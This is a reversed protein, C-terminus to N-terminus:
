PLGPKPRSDHDSYPKYELWKANRNLANSATMVTFYLIQKNLTCSDTYVFQISHSPIVSSDSQHTVERNSAFVKRIM